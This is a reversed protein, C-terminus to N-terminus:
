ANVAKQQNRRRRGLLMPGVGLCAILATSPEPTATYSLVLDSNGNFTEFYVAFESSDTPTAGGNVTFGSTDLAFSSTIPVTSSLATTTGNLSITTSGVQVIGYNYVGSSVNILNGIPAITFAGNSGGSTVTLATTTLLDYTEVTGGNQSIGTAGINTVKVNYRGNNTTVGAAGFNLPGAITLLGSTSGLTTGFGGSIVSSATAGGSVTVTGTVTANTTGLGAGFLAQGPALTLGGTIGAVNLVAGAQIRIASSSAINNSAGTLYTTGSNITTQGTYTNAASLVVAGAGTKTFGINGTIPVGVTLTGSSFQGVILDTGNGSTIGAGTTGITTNNAGVGSGILLGGSTISLVANADGGNVTDAGANNFVLSNVHTTASGAFTVVDTGAVTDNDTAGDVVTDNGGGYSNNFTTLGTIATPTGATTAGVAFTVPAAQGTGDFFAWGGIIGNTNATTTSIAGPTTASASSNPGFRLTGGMATRTIGNLTTYRLTSSDNVQSAGALVTLGSATIPTTGLGGLDFLTSGSLTLATNAPLSVAAATAPSINLTTGGLVTTAGTYTNNGSLTLSNQGEGFVTLGGSVNAATTATGVTAATTSGGGILTVTPAATYNVGPNTITISSIRFTGNGTGDDVMNAVATAGAGSGGTVKVIPAGIYGSGGTAVPITTVGNGTAALLSQSQTPAFNNTDITAGGGYVYVGTGSASANGTNILSANSALVKLIGGNLNVQMLATADATTKGAQIGSANLVGGDLNFITTNGTGANSNNLEVYNITGASGLVGGQVNVVNFNNTGATGNIRLLNDNASAITQNAYGSGSISLVGNGGSAARGLTIFGSALLPGGSVNVVGNGTATAAAGNNGAITIQNNSTAFGGTEGVYGYAGAGGIGGIEFETANQGSNTVSLTGSNIYLAGSGTTTAGLTVLGPNLLGGSVTIMGRGGASDGVIFNTPTAVDGTSVVVNGGNDLYAIAANPVGNNWNPAFTYDGTTAIWTSDARLTHSAAFPGALAAAALLSKQIKRRTGRSSSLQMEAEVKFLGGRVEGLPYGVIRQRNEAQDRSLGGAGSAAM